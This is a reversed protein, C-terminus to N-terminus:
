TKQLKKAYKEEPPINNYCGTYANESLIEFRLVM